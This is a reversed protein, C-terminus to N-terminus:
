VKLAPVNTRVEAEEKPKRVAGEKNSWCDPGKHGQKGCKNCTGKFKKAFFAEEPVKSRSKMDKHANRIARKLSEVTVHRGTETEIELLSRQAQQLSGYDKPLSNLLHALITDDDISSGLTGLRFRIGELENFWGDPETRVSKLVCNRFDKELDVREAVTGPAFTL